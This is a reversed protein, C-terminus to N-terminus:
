WNLQYGKRGDVKVEAVEDNREARQLTTMVRTYNANYSKEALNDIEQVRAAKVLASVGMAGNTQLQAILWDKLDQGSTTQPTQQPRPQARKTTKTKAQQPTKTTKDATKTPPKVEAQSKAEAAQIPTRDIHVAYTVGGSETPEITGTISLKCPEGKNSNAFYSLIEDLPLLLHRSNAKYPAQAPPEQAIVEADGEDETPAEPSDSPEQPATEDLRNVDLPGDQSPLTSLCPEEGTLGAVLSALSPGDTTDQLLGEAPEQDAEKDEGEDEDSCGKLAEKCDDCGCDVLTDYDYGRSKTLCEGLFEDMAEQLTQATQVPPEEQAPAAETEPAEYMKTYCTECCADKLYRTPRKMEALPMVEGCLACAQSPRSDVKARQCSSCIGDTMLSTPTPADCGLCPMTDIQPEPEVFPDSALWDRLEAVATKRSTPKFEHLSTEDNTICVEYRRSRYLVKITYPQSIIAPRYALHLETSHVEARANYAAKLLDQFPSFITTSNLDSMDNIIINDNM